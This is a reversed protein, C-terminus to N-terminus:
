AFKGGINDTQGVGSGSFVEADKKEKNFAEEMKTEIINKEGGVQQTASATQANGSSFIDTTTHGQAAPNNSSPIGSPNSAQSEAQSVLPDSM